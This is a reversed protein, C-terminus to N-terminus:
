DSVWGPKGRSDAQFAICTIRGELIRTLIMSCCNQWKRKLKLTCPSLFGTQFFDLIVTARRYIGGLSRSRSSGIASCGAPCTCKLDPAVPLKLSNQQWITCPSVPPITSAPIPPARLDFFLAEIFWQLGTIAEEEKTGCLCCNPYLSWNLFQEVYDHGTSNFLNCQLVCGFKLIDQVIEWNLM